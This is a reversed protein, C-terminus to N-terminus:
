YNDSKKRNAETKLAQINKLHDTWWKAQPKKHDVERWYKWHTWYSWKRIKNWKSDRRWADPNKWRITSAKEWAHDKKSKLLWKIIPLYYFRFSWGWKGVWWSRYSPM